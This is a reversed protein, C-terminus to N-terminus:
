SVFRNRYENQKDTKLTKLWLDVWKNQRYRYSRFTLKTLM